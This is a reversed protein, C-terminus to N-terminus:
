FDSRSALEYYSTIMNIGLFLPLGQLSVPPAPKTNQTIYLNTQYLIDPESQEYKDFYLSRLM